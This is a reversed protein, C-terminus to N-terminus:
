LWWIVVQMCDCIISQGIYEQLHLGHQNNTHLIDLFEDLLDYLNASNRVLCLSNNPLCSCYDFKFLYLALFM